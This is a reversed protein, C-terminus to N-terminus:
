QKQGDGTPIKREKRGLEGKKRAREMARKKINNNYM